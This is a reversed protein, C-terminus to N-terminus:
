KKGKFNLTYKQQKIRYLSGSIIFFSLLLYIWWHSLDNDKSETIDQPELIQGKVQESNTQSEPTSTATSSADTIDASQELNLGFKTAQQEIFAVTKEAGKDAQSENVLTQWRAIMEKQTQESAQWYDKRVAEMMREILQAQATANHETFWENLGLERQDMVYTEHLSQWQDDRIMNPDMVQWGFVNNVIKLIEVTGAYGEKQMGQIWQPNQYRTRLENSIFQSASTMSPTRNRSDSIYLSPNSGDISKIVASLGGLYEFPHDTSLLGHLNSSRSLVVADTGQLQSQLLNLSEVSTGWDQTTYIHSQSRIFTDALVQDDDWSTSDMAVDTVGSGYDGPTNSFIRASSFRKADNFGIGSKELQKRLRQSNSAIINNSPDEESLAEIVKALKIMLGDFQDRYVSTAQIVVDVRPVSLQDNPIINFGIVRGGSDWEPEAGLARLIQAEILGYTRITESSWLSFALKDPSQGQHEQQYNSILSKYLEDAAEYAAKSPIKEPDFSFLNTGSTTEPSRVPDGGVGPEIFGGKLGKLLAEIENDQHLKKESVIAQKVEALLAEDKISDLSKEGKIFPILFTFADQKFLEEFPKAFLEKEDLNLAKYYPKGLQQMVTAIRLNSEAPKGFVHLGIPTVTQALLHLHDHLIPIFRDISQRIDTESWNLDTHINFEIVKKLMADKTKRRVAGEELQQYEHMLDHIDRLEDYLGSPSYPPTQHSITIARGRRKAQLAEGINDQIYPYFVPMNGVAINPYDYAWLGRDKGLTWEQTGHTGLHILANAKYQERVLLYTALYYHGPAQKLDHTSKGLKDARPPQPLWLLNGSEIAPIIFQLEGEIKRIAWHDKADGWTENLKNQITVPLTTLWNQYSKLSVTQAHGNLLLKELTEEPRYFGSLMSQAQTIISKEDLAEFRYGENILSTTINEISKPVNLNSASLNKEGSPSNWFMLAVKTNAPTNQQLAAIAIFRGILLNIQEPIAVPEGQEVAALVLPDSMGLSEPISIMTASTRAPIGQESQRWDESNKDRITLGITVPINLQSFENKRLKGSVMHTTNVLMAPSAAKILDQIGTPNQREFWFILPIGGALEIEEILTDYLRTQDNSIFTSSSAIALVPANKSWREAGWALYDQWNTFFQDADKHYFGVKPLIKPPTILDLPQQKYWANIYRMMNTFNSEGGSSYYAMLQHMIPPPIYASKPPGGGVIIWPVQTSKLKDEIVALIEARDNGRVSDVIILDSELWQTDDENLNEVYYGKLSINEQRAWESLHTLKSAMIFKNTVVSVRVVPDTAWSYSPMISLNMFVFM